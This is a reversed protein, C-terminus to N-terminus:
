LSNQDSGNHWRVAHNSFNMPVDHDKYFGGKLQYFNTTQVNEISRVQVLNVANLERAIQAAVLLGLGDLNKDGTHNQLPTIVLEPM